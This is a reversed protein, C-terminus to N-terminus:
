GIQRDSFYLLLFVKYAKYAILIKVLNLKFFLYYTEKTRVRSLCLVNFYVHFFLM